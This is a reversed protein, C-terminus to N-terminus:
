MVQLRSDDTPDLREKLGRLTLTVYSLILFLVTIHKYQLVVDFILAGLLALSLFINLAISAMPICELSQFPEQSVQVM